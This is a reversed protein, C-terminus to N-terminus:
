KINRLGWMQSRSKQCPDRFYHAKMLEGLNDGVIDTYAGVQKAKIVRELRKMNFQSASYLIDFKPKLKQYLCYQRRNYDKTDDEIKNSADSIRKNWSNFVEHWESSLEEFDHNMDHRKRQKYIFNYKETFLRANWPTMIVFINNSTGSVTKLGATSPKSKLINNVYTSDLKSKSPILGAVQRRKIYMKIWSDVKRKYKRDEIADNDLVHNLADERILRDIDSLSALKKDSFKQKWLTPNVKKLFTSYNKDTEIKQATCQYWKCFTENWYYGRKLLTKSQFSSNMNKQKRFAIRIERLLKLKAIKDFGPAELHLSTRLIARYLQLVVNGHQKVNSLPLPM